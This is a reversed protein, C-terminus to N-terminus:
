LEHYVPLTVYFTTGEGKTTDFWIRGDASEVINKVMALGLGMGATKTTFNPVFIKDIVEESIGSGNDNVSVLFKEGQQELTIRIHGERDEPIAQIANKVLNNFVRLWQERDAFVIAETIGAPYFHIQAGEDNEKFLDISTRITQILDMRENNPKPMKAFNSFETAITSLTDIQELMNKMMRDLKEEIGPSKDHMARQLHQISLRMPTLPNKIEHAVQKAMERWASERESRALLEASKQLEVIMRNYESVLSGIEDRNHWEIPESTKGLKVKGMKEQILKLPQTLYNSIFIAALISLAFLLVYVNILAVLFTSIEKELDSQKAFYPLNLYGQLKGDKDKVPLYASLYALNGINEDHIFETKHNVGIQLYAEPNMKKSALGEDFVKPQSTAYLNGSPDYLNIDAVFVHAFKPLIITFYDRYSPSLAYQGKLEQDVRLEISQLVSNAKDRIIEANKAQYQQRIYYITGGGFLALSVLVIFVLVLQIRYKFSFNSLTLGSTFLQRSFLVAILLLSYFAFLYSFSTTQGLWGEDAKSLVIITSADARHVLHSYGDEERFVFPESSNGFAESTFSYQYKGYKNLLQGNKYKAYSYNALQSNIGISRDLLLEPFGIEESMFKSDLEIFIQGYGLRTPATPNQLTIHALYSIKGSPNELFRFNDSFTPIGKEEMEEFHTINDSYPSESRILPTCMTDFFTVKLAYKDWYGSFYQQHVRKEFAPYDATATNTYKRLLSDGTIKDEIETFLLEAVPDQEAALKEAYLQRSEREKIDSQKLLLHVSILSFLFVLVVIAAFPYLEERKERRRRTWMIVAIIVTPWCIALLDRMGGLHTIGIHVLGAAALTLWPYRERTNFQRVMSVVRDSLLFFGFLLLAFILMGLYSYQSLSFLNNVNFSINSNHILNTFLSDIIWALLHLGLFLAGGLLLRYHVPWRTMVPRFTCRRAIYWSLYFLLAANILFDGLSPLWFSTADGFYKPSFLPLNDYFTQPFHIKITLFRLLTITGVFLVAAWYPGINEALADCESRVFFIVLVFGAINLILNLWTFLPPSNNQTTPLILSFLYDNKSDHVATASSPLNLQMKSEAPLTFDRQFANVLYQNQYAYESRILLLGIIMRGDPLPRHLVEFWGNKLRAMKDDLCVEKMRNEVAASNDSWFLLSDGQYMLLVLGEDNYLSNYYDPRDRFLQAYSRHQALRALSDLEKNLRTEKRHLVSEFDSLVAAGSENGVPHSLLYAAAFCALALAPLSLRSSFIKAFLSRM